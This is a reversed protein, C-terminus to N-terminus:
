NEEDSFVTNEDIIIVHETVGDVQPQPQPQPQPEEAYENVILQVADGTTPQVPEEVQNQDDVEVRIHHKKEHRNVRRKVYDKVDYYDRDMESYIDDKMDAMDDKLESLEDSLDSIENTNQGTEDKLYEVTEKVDSLEADVLAISKKLTQCNERLKEIDEM